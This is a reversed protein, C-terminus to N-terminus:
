TIKMYYARNTTLKSRECLELLKTAVKTLRAQAHTGVRHIQPTSPVGLIKSTHM